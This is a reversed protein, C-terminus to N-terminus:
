RSRTSRRGSQIISTPLARIARIERAMIPLHSTTGRSLQDLPVQDYGSFFDLLSLVKCIASGDTFEDASPQMFTDRITVKNVTTASNILRLGGDKKVVLFFSNRYPAHSEELIGRDLRM